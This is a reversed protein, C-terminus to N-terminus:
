HRHQREGLRRLHEDDSIVYMCREATMVVKLDVVEEGVIPVGLGYACNSLHYWLNQVPPVIMAREEDPSARSSVSKMLVCSNWLVKNSAYIDLLSPSHFQSAITALITTHHSKLFHRYTVREEYFDLANDTIDRIQVLYRDLPKGFFLGFSDPENGPPRDECAHFAARVCQELLLFYFAACRGRWSKSNLGLISDGLSVLLPLLACSYTVHPCYRHITYIASTLSTPHFHERACILNGRVQLARNWTTM